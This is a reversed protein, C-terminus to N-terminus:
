DGLGAIEERLTKAPDIIGVKPLWDRRRSLTGKARRQRYLNRARSALETRREILEATGIDSRHFAGWGDKFKVQSIAREVIASASPHDRAQALIELARSGLTVIEGDEMRQASAWFLRAENKSIQDEDALIPHGTALNRPAPYGKPALAKVVTAKQNFKVDSEKLNRSLIALCIDVLDSDLMALVNLAEPDGLRSYMEIITPGEVETLMMQGAVIGMYDEGTTAQIARVIGKVIELSEQYEEETIFPLTKKPGSISGMGGTETGIDFEHANKNDQVLPMGIVNRGDTFCQLTYEPGWVNEEILIKDEIDSYSKMYNELWGFHSTKFKQKEDHLYLQRDDIVKVGRGGAQRAPKLAVNQMWTLTDSYKELTERAQEATAFTKFLLKGRLDHKWQLRRLAAKSMEIMAASRTAGICPVGNKRLVDPVGHFNPEEPGIFVFDGRWKTAWELVKTPSTPDALAYDGKTSKCIKDIGPNLYDGVWYIKPEHRSMSLKEAVAHERAANGVGLIRM